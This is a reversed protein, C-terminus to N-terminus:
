GDTASADDRPAYAFVDSELQEEPMGGAVLSDVAAYVFAPAGCILVRQDHYDAAHDTLWRMGANEQSRTPDAVYIAELWPAKLADLEDRYYFSAESDGFALLTVPVTSRCLHRDGIIALAQAAGTGGCVLLLRGGDDGAAFVKGLPGRISFRSGTLLLEDLLAAADLGPTSQYHLHIEPLRKPSSAISLPIGTGNPHVIELYQGALFSFTDSHQDGDILRLVIQQM